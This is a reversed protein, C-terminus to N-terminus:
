TQTYFDCTHTMKEIDTQATLTYTLHHVAHEGGTYGFAYNSVNLKALLFNINVILILLITAAEITYHDSYRAVSGSTRTRNGANGSKRLLLPDPVPEV